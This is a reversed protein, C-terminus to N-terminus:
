LRRAASARNAFVAADGDRRARRAIDPTEDPQPRPPLSPGKPVAKHGFDPKKPIQGRTSIQVELGSFATNIRRRAGRLWLRRRQFAGIRALLSLRCSRADMDPLLGTWNAPLLLLFPSQGHGSHIGAIQWLSIGAGLAALRDGGGFPHRLARPAGGIEPAARGAVVPELRHREEVIGPRSGLRKRGSPVGQLAGRQNLDM